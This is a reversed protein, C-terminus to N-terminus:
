IVFRGQEMIKVKDGSFTTAVIDLDDSGIMFDTHVLSRNCGADMLQQDSSLLHANSLCSPYGSGLAIHCSANEDYLISSFVKNSQSIASDQDVLAVEGLYRAQQDIELFRKIIEDGIETKADIVKGDKFTLKLNEVNSDLVSVPRTTTVYGDVKLRHPTTFVEETPINPMFARGDKLIAGGGEWISTEILGITLDTKGSTFHLSEIKLNNLISGRQKLMQNHKEWSGIVDKQDLKLIPKLVDWLEKVTGDEGLVDKAWKEGPACIVCWSSENRMRNLAYEKSNERLATSYSTLKDADVGELFHRNETNDIRIYAWDKVMMEYDINKQYSPIEKLQQATQNAIRINLLKLDDLEIKVLSAGQEYAVEGLLQAFPYSEYPTKIFLPQGEKLAVGVKIVLKAYEKEMTNM